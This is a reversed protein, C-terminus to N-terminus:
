FLKCIKELHIENDFKKKKKFVVGIMIRSDLTRLIRKFFYNNIDNEYDVM